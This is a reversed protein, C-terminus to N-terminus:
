ISEFYEIMRRRMAQDPLRGKLAGMNEQMHDVRSTAPIACSVGPHSVVFKLFFQAWNQCDIEGAWKPLPKDAVRDFLRGGDFPRNILVAKGNDLAAPLLRREAERHAINYTFQVFDFEAQAKIVQEMEAHRRGHSTTIGIYRIRKEQQWELLTKLHAEWDLMNHIQMLDFKSIGWLAQSAKMQAQGALRTPTWVKGASFLAQENDITELSHGITAEAFGYMPSSDVLAGGLEFFKRLVEARDIRAQTFPATNFTIWTGMGIVPIAEMSSPIKRIIVSSDTAYLAGPWVASSM